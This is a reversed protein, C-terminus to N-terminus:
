QRRELVALRTRWYTERQGGMPQGRMWQLLTSYKELLFISYFGGPLPLLSLVLGVSFGLEGEGSDGSRHFARGIFIRVLRMFRTSMLKQLTSSPFLMLSLSM